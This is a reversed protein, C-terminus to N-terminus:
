ECTFIPIPKIVKKQNGVISDNAIFRKADEHTKFYAIFEEEVYLVYVFGSFALEKNM